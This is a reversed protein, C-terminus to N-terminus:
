NLQYATKVCQLAAEKTIYTWEVPIHAKERDHREAFQENFTAFIYKWYDIPKDDQIGQIYWNEYDVTYDKYPRYNPEKVWPPTKYLIDSEVSSTCMEEVLKNTELWYKGHIGRPFHLNAVHKPHWSLTEECVACCFPCQETCGKFSQFLEIHIQKPLENLLWQQTQELNGPIPLKITRKLMEDLDQLLRSCEGSFVKLQSVKLYNKLKDIGTEKCTIGIRQSLTDSFTNLWESLGSNTNNIEDAKVVSYLAAHKIDAICKDVTTKLLCEERQNCRKVVYQLIWRESYEEFNRLFAVVDQYSDRECIDLLVTGIFSRKVKFIDNQVLFERLLEPFVIYKLSDEATIIIVDVFAKAIMEDCKESCLSKFQSLFIEQEKQLLIAPNKSNEFEHHAVACFPIVWAGIHVLTPSLMENPFTDLNTLNATDSLIKSVAVANFPAKFTEEDLFSKKICTVKEHVSRLIEEKRPPLIRIFRRDLHLFLPFSFTSCGYKPIVDEMLEEKIVGSDNVRPDDIVSLVFDIKSPINPYSLPETFKMVYENSDIYRKLFQKGFSRFKKMGWDCSFNIAEQLYDSPVNGKDCCYYVILKCYHNLANATTM